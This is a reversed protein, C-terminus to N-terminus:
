RSLQAILDRLVEETLCATNEDLDFWITVTGYVEHMVGYRPCDDEDLAFYVVRQGRVACEAVLVWETQTALAPHQDDIRDSTDVAAMLRRAEDRLPKLRKTYIRRYEARQHTISMEASRRCKQALTDAM